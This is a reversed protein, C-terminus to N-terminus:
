RTRMQIITFIHIFTHKHTHTRHYRSWFNGNKKTTGSLNKTLKLEFAVRNIEWTYKLCGCNSGVGLWFLVFYTLANVWISCFDVFWLFRDFSQVSYLFFHPTSHVNVSSCFFLRVFLCTVESSFTVYVCFFSTEVFNLKNKKEFQNIDFSNGFM